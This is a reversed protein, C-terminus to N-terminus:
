TFTPPNGNQLRYFTNYVSFPYLYRPPAKGKSVTVRGNVCKGNVGKGNLKCM